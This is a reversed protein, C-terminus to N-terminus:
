SSGKNNKSKNIIINCVTMIIVGIPCIVKLLIDNGELVASIFVSMVVVIGTSNRIYKLTCMKKM